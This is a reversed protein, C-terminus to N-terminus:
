EVLGHERLVALEDGAVFAFIQPCHPRLSQMLYTVDFDIDVTEGDRPRVYRGRWGVRAIDHLDDIARADVNRLVLGSAGIGDYFAYMQRLKAGFTADNGGAVVGAPTASVYHAAYASRIGTEDVDGALSRNYADAYAGFFEELSAYERPVKAPVFPSIPDSAPFTEELAEDVNEDALRKRARRADDGEAVVPPAGDPNLDKADHQQQM